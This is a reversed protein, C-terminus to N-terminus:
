EDNNVKAKIAAIEAEQDAFLLRNFRVVERSYRLEAKLRKIEELALRLEEQIQRLRCWTQMIDTGDYEGSKLLSILESTSKVESM